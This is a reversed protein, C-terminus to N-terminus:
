YETNMIWMWTFVYANEATKLVYHQKFQKIKKITRKENKCPQGNDMRKNHQKQLSKEEREICIHIHQRKTQKEKLLSFPCSCIDCHQPNFHANYLVFISFFVIKFWENYMRFGYHNYAYGWGWSRGREREWNKKKRNVPLMRVPLLIDNNITQKKRTKKSRVAETETRTRCLIVNPEKPKWKKKENKTRLM